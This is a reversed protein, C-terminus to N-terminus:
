SLFASALGPTTASYGNDALIGLIDRNYMLDRDQHDAVFTVNGRDSSIGGSVSLSSADPGAGTPAEMGASVTLGEYDKRLIVNIVGGIADAGYIAGAGERLIEIREVAATPILNINAAAGDQSASKTMRRGDLLVL